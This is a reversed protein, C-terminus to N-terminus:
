YIVITMLVNCCIVDIIFYFLVNYHFFCFFLYAVYLTLWSIFYFMIIFSNYYATLLAFVFIFFFPFLLYFHYLWILFTSSLFYLFFFIIFLPPLPWILFTSSPTTFINFFPHFYILHVIHLEWTQIKCVLHQLRFLGDWWGMPARGLHSCLLHSKWYFGRPHFSIMILM